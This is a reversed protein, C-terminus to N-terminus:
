YYYQHGYANTRIYRNNNPQVITTSPQVVTTSPQVVTTTPQVVTQVPIVRQVPLVQEYQTTYCNDYVSNGIYSNCNSYCGTNCGHGYSNYGYNCACGSFILGTIGLITFNVLKNMKDGKM